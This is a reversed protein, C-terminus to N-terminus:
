TIEGEERLKKIKRNVTGVGVGMENAITRQTTVGGRWLELVRLKKLDGLPHWTWSAAGDKDTRFHAEFPEAARGFVSRAKTLHVEFRAGEAANYNSPRKLQIVQSLVDERKSTGRQLGGKGEHYIVLVTFGRRRLSLLFNQATAWSRDENESHASQFLTSVSDLIILDIDELHAELSSQGAETSLSPLAPDQLDASLIRFPKAPAEEAGMVIGALRTKLDLAPMEGEVFLVGRPEPITYRLFDNGSSIAYGLCAALLTKGVGRYAHIGAIDREQILGQVIWRRPPIDLQLFEDLSYVHAKTSTHPRIQQESVSM